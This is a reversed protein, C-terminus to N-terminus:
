LLNIMWRRLLRQMLSIISIGVLVLIITTITWDNIVLGVAIGAAPAHETDTITMLLMALSVALGAAAVHLIKQILYHDIPLVTLYHMLCGVLVGIIYGGILYRPSSIKMHPVTFAVFGSAGFSAIIVPNRVVDFLDIALAVALGAMIAQFIFKLKNEQFKGDLVRM